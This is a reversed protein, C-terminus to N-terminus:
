QYLYKTFLLDAILTKGTEPLLIKNLHEVLTKRLDERGSLSKITEENQKGLLEIVADRILPQHHEITALDKSNAVMIDLRVQIYGLKKGKTYFNTTLDPELTFYALKPESEEEAFSSASFLLTIALFIQAVYRKHM